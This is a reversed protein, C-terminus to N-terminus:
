SVLQFTRSLLGGPAGSTRLSTFSASDFYKSIVRSESETEISSASFASTMAGSLARAFRVSEM